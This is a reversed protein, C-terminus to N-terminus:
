EVCPPEAAPRTDAGRSRGRWGLGPPRRLQGSDRRLGLVTGAGRVNTAVLVRCPGKAGPPLGQGLERACVGRLKIRGVDPIGVGGPFPLSRRQPLLGWGTRVGQGAGSPLM